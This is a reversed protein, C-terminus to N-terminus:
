EGEVSVKKDIIYKLQKNMYILLNKPIFYIYILLNLIKSNLM